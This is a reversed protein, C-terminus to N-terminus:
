KASHPKGTLPAIVGHYLFEKIRLGIPRREYRQLETDVADLWQRTDELQAQLGRLEERANARALRQLSAGFFPTSPAYHWFHEAFDCEADDWPKVPGAYHVIYPHERATMYAQYLEPTSHSIIERIRFGGYNYMVNWAMDVFKVQDQCLVNLVDQDLLQFEHSGAYRFVEDADIKERWVDLNFLITGAQFYNYPDRLKLVTDTYERKNPQEVDIDIGNYIGTTDPDHCAAILYDSVDTDYLEAVDRLCIMDADLYLVKRHEPLLQPLLLRFYTERKFHGRVRLKDNYPLMASTVDLVRLVVNDREVQERLMREHSEALDESLVILEYARAPDCHDLISAFLASLYPAYFDNAAFVVSVTEPSSDQRTM